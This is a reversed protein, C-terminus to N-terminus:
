DNLYIRAIFDAGLIMPSMGVIIWTLALNTRNSIRQQNNQDAEVKSKYNELNFVPGYKSGVHMINKDDIILATFTMNGTITFITQNINKFENPSTHYLIMARLPTGFYSLPTVTLTYTNLLSQISDFTQNDLSVFNDNNRGILLFMAKVYQPNDVHFAIYYSVPNYESFIEPTQFSLAGSVSAEINGNNDRLYYGYGGFNCALEVDCTPNHESEYIDWLIPLAFQIMLGLGLVVLAISIALFV